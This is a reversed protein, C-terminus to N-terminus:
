TPPVNPLHPPCRLNKERTSNAIVFTQLNSHYVIPTALIQMSCKSCSHYTTRCRIKPSLFIHVVPGSASGQYSFYSDKPPFYVVTLQLSTRPSPFFLSATCVAAKAFHVDPSPSQPLYRQKARLNHLSHFCCPLSETFVLSPCKPTILALFSIFGLARLRETGASLKKDEKKKRLILVHLSPFAQPEPLIPLEGPILRGLLLQM